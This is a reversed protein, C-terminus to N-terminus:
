ANGGGKWQELYILLALHRHTSEPMPPVRACVLDKIKADRLKIIMNQAARCQDHDERAALLAQVRKNLRRADQLVTAKEEM